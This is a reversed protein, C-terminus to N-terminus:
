RIVTTLAKPNILKQPTISDVSQDYMTMRERVLRETRSLGVRCQNALLEGVTRVRRSGLHVIDASELIRQELDTKLGLKQNVKYRGVRGLDYRKPDFFLRKLLAKANATTPPEGPRLRKYIEKLAEEENRTPDKKLARIIAGEDIATDIVRISAIDHKEFTRVIQKTLPEFARALVVGKQADIADEVLVLTSVNDMDLAKSVKLDKIEYFLNLIDVDASYGIARLLTTILFKRRRRRRDLYVYLLDNNDFQVELWTGRDPIIRFSHLLKGNPHPAVEFAIGPSRHLQSVVVREAGNIIFSGRETVMPIEGMYIDEDKIFDEERLRLKVYLPVSYTIGERICEIESNKPDGLTYSVYELVLRGDYSEIPFVERFVAELGQNKRQKEPVGKQLYDLYSTIQIEILNPPAIVEKLKGFNIREAHTRDAM